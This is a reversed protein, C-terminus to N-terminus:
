EAGDHRRQSDSGLSARSNQTGIDKKRCVFRKECSISSFCQHSDKGRTYRDKENENTGKAGSKQEIRACAAAFSVLVHLTNCALSLGGSEPSFTLSTAVWPFPFGAIPTIFASSSIHPASSGNPLEFCSFRSRYGTPTFFYDLISLHVQNQRSPQLGLM